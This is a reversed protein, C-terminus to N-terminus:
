IEALDWQGARGPMGASRWEARVTSPAVGFAEAVERLTAVIWTPQKTPQETAVGHEVLWHAVVSPDFVRRRGRGTCPLGRKIWASLDQTSVDLSAILEAANM